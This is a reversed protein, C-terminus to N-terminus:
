ARWSNVTDRLTTELAIEPAWGTAAHLRAYSGRVEPVENPRVRDPDVVLEVGVGSVRGLAAVLERASHSVGSCINFVGPEGRAALLRYARVVDRVDTYDRRTDPAGTVVRVPDDGADLGAAVQRAFASIAYIADQGPGAHNYARARVIRLGYADAYCGAILDASAKSAAYPNQPRLGGDEDTPVTVPPGYAESSGAAVLVADGALVRVAELVALTMAVNDSITGAPDGWSEGVHARAALHYVVDPRAGAVFARAAARDRLDLAASPPAEIVEDGAAACAAVLHRGAFGSAGTILARM